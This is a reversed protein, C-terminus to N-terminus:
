MNEKEKTICLDVSIMKVHYMTSRDFDYIHKKAHNMTVKAIIKLIRENRLTLGRHAKKYKRGKNKEKRM